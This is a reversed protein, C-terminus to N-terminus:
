PSPTTQMNATNCLSKLHIMAERKEKQSARPGDMIAKIAECAETRETIDSSFVLVTRYATLLLNIQAHEQAAGKLRHAQSLLFERRSEDKVCCSYYLLNNLAMFEAPINMGILHGYGQECLDIAEWIKVEDVVELSARDLSLEGLMYGLISHVRGLMEKELPRIRKEELSASQKKIESELSEVTNRAQANITAIQQRGESDLNNVQLRLQKETTEFKEELEAELEDVRELRKQIDRWGIIALIAILTSFVFLALSSAGFLLTAIQSVDPANGFDAHSVFYFSISWTVVILSIGKAYALWSIQPVSSKENM